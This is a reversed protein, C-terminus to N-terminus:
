FWFLYVCVIELPDGRTEFILYKADMCILNNRQAFSEFRERDSAEDVAEPTTGEMILDLGLSSLHPLNNSLPLALNIATQGGFQLLIGHADERLELVGIRHSAHPQLGNPHREDHPPGQLVWENNDDAVIQRARLRDDPRLLVLHNLLRDHRGNCSEELEEALRAVGALSGASGEGRM